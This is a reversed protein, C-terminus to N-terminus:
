EQHSVQDNQETEQQHKIEVWFVESVFELNM